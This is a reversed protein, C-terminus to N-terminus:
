LLSPAADAGGAQFRVMTAEAVRRLDALLRELDETRTRHNVICVRLAFQQGLIANSLYSEGDRQLAVMLQRNFENLAADQGALARPVCRFCVISLSIPALREFDDSQDIADGLQQALALNREIVDAFARAGHLKLAFWIKLARFRRSLEPSVDWFAFDSMDRDAVVDIYAAGQSFARGLHAEDRVLLCGADLPAFLWKHPDLAISQARQMGAFAATMQPVAAAFGGYSGDVHFWVRAQACVDAIENLPDILGTNVDGANGVVCVPHHGTARDAAILEALADSMLEGNPSTPVMRVAERGLGLLAAAKPISMHVRDSAYVTPPGPLATVGRRNIDVDTSARLAAAMATMNAASGGGLLLGGGFEDCGVLAKLWDIVQLEITTASPASRWSTVNQNLASALLDGIVGAFNGSSQVYGFMRPHGNNRGLAAFEAFQALVHAPDHGDRPLPEAILQQLDAASIAPYVPSRAANAVYELVWALAAEGLRRRDASTLELSHRPVTEGDM